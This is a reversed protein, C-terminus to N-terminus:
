SKASMSSAAIGASTTISAATAMATPRPTFSAANMNWMHSGHTCPAAGVGILARREGTMIPMPAYPM